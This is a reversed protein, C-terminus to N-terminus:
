EEWEYKFEEVESLFRSPETFVVGFSFFEAPMSLYLNRKARTCAVYFLRREEEVEEVSRISQVSPFLGDLLHPIFVTNWELGKASHVTSLILPKEEIEDLLPSTADQFKNSPPELALDTLFKELDDDYKLALNYLVDIDPLRNLYDDEMGQLIPAYYRKLIEIKDAVPMSDHNIEGLVNALKKLEEHYKRRAFAQPHLKGKNEHIHKLINNATASGVGPIMKLVRNWAVADYPNFNIKLYALLDKIHRREIFKIGGYVVYPINHKLLETQVANGHFSARYLIAIENLPIGGERLELIKSVIYEAEDWQSYFNKVVPRGGLSDLARLEKRYGLRANELLSNTFDLIPQTSRYNQELKIVRCEPYTEPFRLINEYNAGRFRYISQSDDGVCMINRSEKEYVIMDAIEKQPINTDQYEDLMIYDFSSQIKHRFRENYKLHHRLLEMLDDYDLINNQQKYQAYKQSILEIDETYEALGTYQEEILEPITINLNRSKSIIDRIRGKQPVPRSRKTIKLESRVLDIIDESDGQDSITFSPSLGILSSYRRLMHNAFSHFTGGSVEQVKRDNLLTATRELMERAAKKTFTLLLIRQPDVGKEMLYAVRYTVVRTKGSGAGAIVLLPGETITVGMLQAENLENEYDIKFGADKDLVPAQRVTKEEISLAIQKLRDLRLEEENLERPAEKDGNGDQLPFQVINERDMIFKDGGM